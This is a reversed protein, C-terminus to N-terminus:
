ACIRVNWGKKEWHSLVYRYFTESRTSGCIPALEEGVKTLLVKGIELINDAESKFEINVKTGYYFVDIRKPLGKQLFGGLNDFKILGIGDLHTLNAFNIGDKAYIESALNYILIRVIGIDWGFKCLNTFLRADNKELISVFEITRKSFNGPNNAEGALLKAWLSQMEIDSTLRSKEFFHVLWDKEVDEPRAGAQLNEIAQISINEINEQRQGEEDIMREFARRKIESIEIDGLVKIKTAENEAAAIRKIQYPRFFAGVADSIREILVTAPKSINGLNILSREESM